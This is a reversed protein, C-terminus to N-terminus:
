SGPTRLNSGDLDATAFRGAGGGAFFVSWVGGGAHGKVSTLALYNLDDPRVRLREAARRVLREPMAPNVKGFSLGRQGSGGAGFTRVHLDPLVQISATGGGRGRVVVADIREPEIRLVTISAERGAEDRIKDLAKSFRERPVLSPGDHSGTDFGSINDDAGDFANFALVFPLVSVAVFVIAVVAILPSFPFRRRPLPPHMPVHGQQWTQQHQPPQPQQPPLNHPVEDAASRPPPQEGDEVPRSTAGIRPSRGVRAQPSEEEEPKWWPM